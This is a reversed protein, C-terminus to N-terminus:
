VPSVESAVLEYSGGKHAVTKNGFFRRAVRRRFRVSLIANFLRYQLYLISLVIATGLLTFLFWHKGMQLIFEADGLHWSSGHVQTFFKVMHKRSDPPVVIRVESGQPVGWRKYKKWLVSLMLPGTSYMITIYSVIWNRNYRELNDIVKMFFPHRPVSGMIDNSVGTPETKRLFAPFALLPDFKTAAGNDLDIYIGGYHCLVFYRIADARQIPFPYSDYTKLFWPYTNAIFNRAMEDTWLIYQYDPHMDLVSKRTAQWAEPIDETKYTQHIIKPIVLQRDPVLEGTSTEHYTVESLESEVIMDHFSDDILLTMLDWVQTLILFLVFGNVALLM